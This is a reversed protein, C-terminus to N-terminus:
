AALALPTARRALRHQGFWRTMDAGTRNHYAMLASVLRHVQRLIQNLEVNHHRLAQAGAKPTAWGPPPRMPRATTTSRAPMSPWWCRIAAEPRPLRIWLRHPRASAPGSRATSRTVTFWWESTPGPGTCRWTFRSARPHRGTAKSCTETSTSSSRMSPASRTGACCGRTAGCRGTAGTSPSTVPSTIRTDGRWLARALIALEQPPTLAPMLHDPKPTFTM